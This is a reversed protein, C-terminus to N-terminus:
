VQCHIAAVKVSFTELLVHSREISNSGAVEQWLPVLPTSDHRVSVSGLRFLLTIFWHKKCTGCKFNLQFNQINLVTWAYLYCFNSRGVSRAEQTQSHINSLHGGILDVLLGIYESGKQM